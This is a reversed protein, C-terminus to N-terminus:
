GQLQGGDIRIINGSAFGGKTALFYIWDGVESPQMGRGLPINASLMDEAKDRTINRQEMLDEITYNDMPTIVRGLALGALFWEDEHYKNLERAACKIFQNAGAKSAGYAFSSSKPIMATDSTIAIFKKAGYVGTFEKEYGQLLIFNSTLNVNITKNFDELSYGRIPGLINVGVSNVLLDLRGYNDNILKMLQAVEQPSTIDAMIQTLGSHDFQRDVVIVKYGENNMKEAINNGINGKTGGGIVLAVESNTM